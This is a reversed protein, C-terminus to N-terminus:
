GIKTLCLWAAAAGLLPLLWWLWRGSGPVRRIVTLAAGLLLWIGLKLWVWLGMELHQVGLIAFGTLLLLVLAFGHSIGTRTESRAGRRQDAILAGFATFLLLVGLVHLVKWVVYSM